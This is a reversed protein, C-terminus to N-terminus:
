VVVGAARLERNILNTLDATFQELNKYGHITVGGFNITINRGTAKAAGRATSIVGARWEAIEPAMTISAIQNAIAQRQNILAAWQATNGRALKIVEDMSATGSAVVEAFVNAPLVAQLKKLADRYKELKRIQSRAASAFGGVRRKEPKEWLGAFNAIERSADKFREIMDKTKDIVETLAKRLADVANKMSKAASTGGGGGAVAAPKFAPPPTMKWNIKTADQLAAIMEKTDAIRGEFLKGLTAVRLSGSMSAAAYQASQGLASYAGIAAGLQGILKAYASSAAAAGQVAIGAAWAAAEGSYKQALQTEIVRVKYTDWATTAAEQALTLQALALQANGSQKGYDAVAKNYTEQAKAVAELASLADVEVQAMSAASNAYANLADAQAKLEATWEETDKRGKNILRSYRELVDNTDTDFLGSDLMAHLPNAEGGISALIKLSGIMGELFPTVISLALLFAQVSAAGGRFALRLMQGTAGAKDTLQAFMDRIIPLTASFMIMLDKLFPLLTTGLERAFLTLQDKFNAWQGALTKMQEGMLGGFDRGIGQRIAAIAFDAPILGKETMDRVAATTTGIADAVYQWAPIFAETLQLMDRSNMRGASRMQGLALTIRNIGEAGTGTAAAADGVDRLIPIVEEASFGYARLRLAQQEVDVLEFPTMAAFRALSELMQKAKAAGGYLHTFAVTVMELRVAQAVVEKIAAAIGQIVAKVTMIAAFVLVSKAITTLLHAFSLGGEKAGESAKSLAGSAANAEKALRNYEKSLDALTAKLQLMHRHANAAAQPDITVLKGLGGGARIASQLGSMATKVTLIQNAIAGMTTGPRMASQLAAGATTSAAQLQSLANTQTQIARTTGSTAVATQTQAVAVKPTAVRKDIAALEAKVRAMAADFADTKLGLRAEVEAALM